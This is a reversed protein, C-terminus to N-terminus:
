LHFPSLYLQSHFSTPLFDAIAHSSKSASLLVQFFWYRVSLTDLHAQGHTLITCACISASFSAVPLCFFMSPHNAFNAWAISLPLHPTADALSSKIFVLKSVLWFSFAFSSNILKSLAIFFLLHPVAAAFRSKSLTANCSGCALDSGCPGMSKAGCALNSRASVSSLVTIPLSLPVWFSINSSAFVLSSVAVFPTNASNLRM